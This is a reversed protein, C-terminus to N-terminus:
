IARSVLSVGSIRRLAAHNGDIALQRMAEMVLLSGM